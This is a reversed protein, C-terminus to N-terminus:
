EGNPIIGLHHNLKSLLEEFQARNNLPTKGDRSDELKKLRSDIESLEVAELSFKLVAECARLQIREDQSDLLADLNKVSKVFLTKLEEFTDSRLRERELDLRQKFHPLNLWEFFSRKSIGTAESAKAITSHTLLADVGKEQRPTLKIKTRFRATEHM